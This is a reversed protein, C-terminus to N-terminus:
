PFTKNLFSCDNTLTLMEIGTELRDQLKMIIDQILATPTGQDMWIIMIDQDMLLNPIKLFTILMKIEEKLIISIDSSLLTKTKTYSTQSHMSNEQIPVTTIFILHKIISVMISCNNDMTICQTNTRIDMISTTWKKTIKSIDLNLLTKTKMCKIKSLSPQLNSM